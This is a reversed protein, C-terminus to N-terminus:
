TCRQAIASQRTSIYVFKYKRTMAGCLLGTNLHICRTIPHHHFVPFVSCKAFNKTEVSPERLAVKGIKRCEAQQYITISM